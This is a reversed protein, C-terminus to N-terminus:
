ERKLCRRQWIPGDGESTYIFGLGDATYTIAEQQRLAVAGGTIAHFDQGERMDESAKIPKTLDLIFEWPGEYTLLLFNKGTPSVSMGTVIEEDVDKAKSFGPLNISGIYKLENTDEFISSRYIKAPSAGEKKKREKTVIFVDGSANVAFAEANHPKDAYKLKITKIPKVEKSFIKEERIVHIYIEGRDKQNDGIDGVYICNGKKDPCNAYALDETDIFKAGLVRVEQTLSGKLDTVYLTSESGSDNIHYLRDPYTTSNAIGSSEELVSPLSGIQQADSWEKCLEAQAVLSFLFLLKIM